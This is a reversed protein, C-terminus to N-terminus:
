QLVGTVEISALCVTNRSPGPAVKLETVLRPAAAQEPDGYRTSPTEVPYGLMPHFDPIITTYGLPAFKYATTKL